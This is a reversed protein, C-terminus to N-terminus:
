AKSVGLLMKIDKYHINGKGKEELAKAIILIHSWVKVTVFLLLWKFFYWNGWIYLADNTIALFFTLSCNLFEDHGQGPPEAPQLAKGYVLPQPNSEWDPCMGINSTWDRTLACAPFLWDINREWMLTERGMGQEKKDRFFILPCIWLHPYIFVYGNHMYWMMCPHIQFVGAIHFSPM